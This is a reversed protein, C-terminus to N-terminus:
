AGTAKRRETAASGISKSTPCFRKPELDFLSGSPRLTSFRAGFARRRVDFKTRRRAVTGVAPKM